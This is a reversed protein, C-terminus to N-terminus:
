FARKVYVSPGGCKPCAHESFQTYSYEEPKYKPHSNGDNWQPNYFCAGEYVQKIHKCDMKEGSFKYAPCSCFAPGESGTFTVTYVKGNSGEVEFVGYNSACDEATEISISM